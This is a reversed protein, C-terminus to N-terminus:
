FNFQMRAMIEDFSDKGFSPNMERFHSQTHMWDLMMCIDRGKIYWNLGATTTNLDDDPLQDPKFYEYKGVLELKNRILQYGALVWYGSCTFEPVTTLAGKYQCQMYEAQVTLPGWNFRQDVGGATRKDGNATQVTLTKLSGDKQVYSNGVQSLVTNTADDSQYADAGLIWSIPEGMAEGKIPMFDVREMTMMKNNDNININRNNGNFIGLYYKILDKQEPMITALPSGWLMAGIQREVRLAESVQSREPTLIMMDPIEFQEMGFPTDFQGVKINAEDFTHWNIYIDTGSMAERGGTQGDTQGFDGMVKFDFDDSLSGWAGIRARRLRFRNYESSGGAAPKAWQGEYASVDGSEGNIQIYGGLTLKEPKGPLVYDSLRFSSNTGTTASTGKLADVQSQLQHVQDDLKQIQSADTDAARVGGVSCVILSLGFAIAKAKQDSWKM